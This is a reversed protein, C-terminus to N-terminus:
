RAIAIAEKLIEAEMTKKGLLRELKRVRAKLQKVESAPVINEDAGVAVLAEERMPKRWHFLQNTNVGYKRVM